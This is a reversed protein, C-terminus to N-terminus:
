DSVQHVRAALHAVTDVGALAATWDTDPGIDGVAVADGLPSARRLDRVASRVSMGRGALHRVLATGVFGTAGTVLVRNMGTDTPM